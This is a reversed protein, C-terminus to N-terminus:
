FINKQIPKAPTHVEGPLERYLKGAEAILFNGVRVSPPLEQISCENHCHGLIWKKPKMGGMLVHVASAYIRYYNYRNAPIEHFPPRFMETSPAKEEPKVLDAVYFIATRSGKFDTLLNIHGFVKHPDGFVQQPMTECIVKRAEDMAVPMSEPCFFDLAKLLHLGM